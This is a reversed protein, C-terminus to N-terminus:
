TSAKTDHGFMHVQQESRSVVYGQFVRDLQYFASVGVFEPNLKPLVLFDPLSSKRVMTNAIRLIEFCMHFVDM